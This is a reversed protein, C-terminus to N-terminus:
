PSYYLTHCFLLGVTDVVSKTCHWDALWKSVTFCLKKARNHQLKKVYTMENKHKLSKHLMTNTAKTVIKNSQTARRRPDPHNKLRRSCAKGRQKLITHSFGLKMEQSLRSLFIRITKLKKWCTKM